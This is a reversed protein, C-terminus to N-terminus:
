IFSQIIIAFFIITIGVYLPRNSKMFIHIFDTVIMQIRETRNDVEIFYNSFNHVFAVVDDIVNKNVFMWNNFLEKLSSNLINTDTNELDNTEQNLENLENLEETTIYDGYNIDM